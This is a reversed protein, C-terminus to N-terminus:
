RRISFGRPLDGPDAEVTTVDAVFATRPGRNLLGIMAAVKGRSGGILAAVSGDDENRVWGDLGLKEAEALTWARFNVGQVRGTITVKLAYLDDTM